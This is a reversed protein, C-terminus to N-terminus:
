CHADMPNAILHEHVDGGGVLFKPSDDEIAGFYHLLLRDRRGTTARKLADLLGKHGCRNTGWEHTDFCHIEVRAKRAPRWRIKHSARQFLDVWLRPSRLGAIEWWEYITPPPLPLRVELPGRGVFHPPLYDTPTFVLAARHAFLDDQAALYVRSFVTPGEYYLRKSPDEPLRRPM